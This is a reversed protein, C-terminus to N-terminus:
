YKCGVILFDIKSTSVLYVIYELCESCVNFFHIYGLWVRDM